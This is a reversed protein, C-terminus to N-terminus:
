LSVWLRCGCLGHHELPKQPLLRPPPRIGHRHDQHVDGGHLHGHLCAGAGGALPSICYLNPKAPPALHLFLEFEQVYM